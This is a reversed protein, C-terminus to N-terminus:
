DAQDHYPVVTKRMWRIKGDKRRIRYEIAAPDRGSIVDAIQQKIGARDEELVIAMWLLPDAAYEDATYGTVVACTAGHIKRRIRGNDVEVHYFYDAVAARLSRYRYESEPLSENSPNDTM